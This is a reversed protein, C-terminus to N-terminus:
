LRLIQIGICPLLAKSNDGVQGHALYKRVSKSATEKCMGFTNYILVECAFPITELKLVRSKLAKGYNFFIM